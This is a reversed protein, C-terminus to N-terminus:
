QSCAALTEHLKAPPVHQVRARGLAELLVFKPTGQEAKKDVEMLQLYRAAPWAPGRVPLRAAGVLAEIRAVVTRDILDLRSSLDGAMVMGCGVAEGHLWQGYGMGAEIAHGFTHGFNLIARMGAEREDSAVVRAKIRCSGAIAYALAQPDAALLAPLDHEIRDLYATDAVVGHKIIEALGSSLERPPLSALTDLDAMVLKPQHFSGIMNKGAPHNIATKGGVSSDVQSLLTTPVQVYDVGRQYVAAAFGALDGVVGGGLAILLCRRDFRHALLGDFIRNLTDWNKHGEGDAIVLTELRAAAGHLSAALRAAYLPGVVTNTVIAVQRGAALERLADCRALLGPDILIPYSRDGLAVDLRM